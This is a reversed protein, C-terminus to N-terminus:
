AGRPSAGTVGGETRGLPVSYEDSRDPEWPHLRAPPRWCRTSQAAARRDYLGISPPDPAAPPSTAQRGRPALAARWSVGGRICMDCGHALVDHAAIGLEGCELMEDSARSVLPDGGNLALGAHPLGGQPPRGDLVRQLVSRTDEDRARSFGLRAEGVGAKGIEEIPDRVLDVIGERRGLASREPDREQQLLRHTGRWVHPRDGSGEHVGQSRHRAVLRHEYRDVVGVPEIRGRRGDKCEGPTSETIFPHAEYERPPQIRGPNLLGSEDVREHLRSRNAEAKPRERRGLDPREKM